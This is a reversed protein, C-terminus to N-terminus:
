RVSPHKNNARDHVLDAMVSYRPQNGRQACTQELSEAYSNGHGELDGGGFTQPAVYRYDILQRAESFKKVKIFSALTYLFLEYCLLKYNDESCKFFAQVSEPRGRFPLLRELLDFLAPMFQQSSLHAAGAFVADIFVDRHAVAREINARIRECWTDAEERSYVM